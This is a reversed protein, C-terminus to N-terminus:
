KKRKRISILLLLLDLLIIILVSFKVLWWSKTRAIIAFLWTLINIGFIFVFIVITFIDSFNNKKVEQTPGVEISKLVENVGENIGNVYDNELFFPSVVENLIRKAVSDTIIPELGYGVELRMTRQESVILWLLGEDKEKTGLGLKEYLKVSFNEIYDGSMNPIIVVAIDVNKNEKISNLKKSIELVQEPELINSYDTVYDKAVIEEPTMGFAYFPILTFIILQSLIKKM